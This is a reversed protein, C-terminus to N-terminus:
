HGMAAKVGPVFESPYFAAARSRCARGCSLPPLERRVVRCSFPLPTWRKGGQVGLGARGARSDRVVLAVLVDESQGRVIAAAPSPQAGGPNEQSGPPPAPPPARKESRVATGPLDRRECSSDPPHTELWPGPVVQFAPPGIARLDALSPPCTVCAGSFACPHRPNM